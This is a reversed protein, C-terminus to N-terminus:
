SNLYTDRQHNSKFLGMDLNINMHCESRRNYPACINANGFDPIVLYQYM